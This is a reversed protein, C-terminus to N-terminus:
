GTNDPFEYENHTKRDVYTGPSLKGYHTHKIPVALGASFAPSQPLLPRMKM